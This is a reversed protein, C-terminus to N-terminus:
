VRLGAFGCINATKNEANHPSDKKPWYAARTLILWFLLLVLTVYCVAIFILFHFQWEIFQLLVHVVGAKHQQQQWEHIEQVIHAYM